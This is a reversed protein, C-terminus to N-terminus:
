DVLEWAVNGLGGPIGIALKTGITLDAVRYGYKEKYFGGTDTILAVVSQGTAINTVKAKHGVYRVMHAPVAMTLASDNLPQGNAMIVNPDCGLCGARSYYSAPGALGRPLDTPLPAPAYALRTASVQPKVPWKGTETKISPYVATVASSMYSDTPLDENVILLNSDRDTLYVKAILEQADSTSLQHEFALVQHPLSVPTLFAVLLLISLLNKM